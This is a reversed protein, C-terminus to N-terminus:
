SIGWFENLDDNKEDKAHEKGFYIYGIKGGGVQIEYKNKNELPLNFFGKIESYLHEMTESSFFYEKLTVFGIEEFVAGLHSIFEKRKKLDIRLFDNM